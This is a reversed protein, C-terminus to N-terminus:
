APAPLKRGATNVVVAIALKGVWADPDIVLTVL